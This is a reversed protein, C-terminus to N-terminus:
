SGYLIFTNQQPSCKLGWRPSVCAWRPVRFVKQALGLSASPAACHCSHCSKDFNFHPAKLVEGMPSCLYHTWKTNPGLEVPVFTGEGKGLLARFNVFGYDEHSIDIGGDTVWLCSSAWNPWLLNSGWRGVPDLQDKCSVRYSLVLFMLGM